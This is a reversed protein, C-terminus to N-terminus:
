QKKVGANHSQFLQYTAKKHNRINEPIVRGTVRQCIQRLEHVNINRSAHLDAVHKMFRDSGESEKLRKVHDDIVKSTENLSKLFNEFLAIKADELEDKSMEKIAKVTQDVKRAVWENKALDFFYETDEMIGRVFADPASPDSVIDAATALKFDQQVEQIGAKNPKLSGLGRSSVGIKGGGEMIKQVTMGMPTDLLRAKGVVNNGEWRLSEILHSVRDLNITPGAPHGLEGFANKNTVKENIYNTVAGEMVGKPYYRGNRNKIESQMFIGEIYMKKNGDSGETICQVDTLIETILKM